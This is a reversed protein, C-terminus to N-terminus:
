PSMRRISDSMHVGTRELQAKTGEDGETVNSYLVVAVVILMVTMLLSRM